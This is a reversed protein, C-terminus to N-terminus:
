IRLEGQIYIKLYKNENNLIHMYNETETWQLGCSLSFYELPQYQLDLYHNSTLEVIGSPFAPHPDGGETEHPLELIGEGKRIYQFTYYANFVTGMMYTIRIGTIDADPGIFYMMPHEYYKYICQAYEHTGTWKTIMAYELEGYLGKFYMPIGATLQLGVKNPAIERQEDYQYDDVFIEASLPIKRFFQNRFELSWIVNDDVRGNWQTFYYFAFPNVYRMEPLKSSYIIIEKFAFSSRMPLQFSLKHMSVYTKFSDDRFVAHAPTVIATFYTFDVNNKRLNFSLGDYSPTFRSLFMNDFLGQGWAPLFRGAIIYNGNSYYDIVARNITSKTGKWELARITDKYEKEGYPLQSSLMVQVDANSFHGILSLKNSLLYDISDAQYAQVAFQDRILADGEVSLDNYILNILQLDNVPIRRGSTSYRIVTNELSERIESSSHPIDNNRLIIYGKVMLYDIYHYYVYDRYIMQESFIFLSSILLLFIIIYKM